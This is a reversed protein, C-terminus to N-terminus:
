KLGQLFPNHAAEEGLTTDPGHGSLVRTTPPLNRVLMGISNMLQSYDAGPLDTRGISGAFLVDGGLLTEAEANFFSVHGPSHGPTFFVSFSEKGVSLKEGGRVVIDPEPCNKMDPSSLGYLASVQEVSERLFKEDPHGVLPVAQLAKFEAVGGCHDLHAHTLWIAECTVGLSSLESYIKRAEGGPDVVVGKMTETCWLIRSNQQFPTVEIIRTKLM